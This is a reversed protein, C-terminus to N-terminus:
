FCVARFGEPMFFLCFDTRQCLASHLCFLYFFFVPLDPVQM